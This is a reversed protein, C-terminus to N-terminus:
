KSNLKPYTSIDIEPLVEISFSSLSVVEVGDSVSINIDSYNGDSGLSLYGELLGTTTNFEAWSPKNQISFTLANSNSSVKPQFQYREYIHATSKPHGFIIPANGCDARQLTSCLHTRAASFTPLSLRNGFNEELTHEDDLLRLQIGEVRDNIIHMGNDPNNDNDLAMLIRVIKLAKVDDVDNGAKALELPTVIKETVAQVGNGKQVPHAEGLFVDGVYFKVPYGERYNFVGDSDTVGTIGVGADYKAGIVKADLLVAKKTVIADSASSSSGGGGGGCATLLLLTLLQNLMKIKKM